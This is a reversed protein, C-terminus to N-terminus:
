WPSWVKATQSLVLIGGSCAWIEPEAGLALEVTDGANWHEVSRFPSESVWPGDHPIELRVLIREEAKVYSARFSSSITKAAATKWATLWPDRRLEAPAERDMFARFRPWDFYRPQRVAKTDSAAAEELARYFAADVGGRWSFRVRDYKIDFPYIAGAPRFRGPEVGPWFPWALVPCPWEAFLELGGAAGSDFVVRETAGEPTIWEIRWRPEGLTERWHAPIEPFEPMYGSLLAPDGCAAFVLPLVVLIAAGMFLLIFRHKM